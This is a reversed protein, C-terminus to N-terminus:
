VHFAEQNRHSHTLMENGATANNYGMQPREKWHQEPLNVYNGVYTRMLAKVFVQLWGRTQQSHTELQRSRGEFGNGAVELAPFM